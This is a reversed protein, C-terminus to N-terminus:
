RYGLRYSFYGKKGFGSVQIFGREWDSMVKFKKVPGAVDIDMEDQDFVVKTPFVRVAVHTGPILLPVGLELVYPMFRHVVKILKEM